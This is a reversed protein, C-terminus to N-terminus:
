HLLSVLLISIWATAWSSQPQRQCLITYGTTMRQMVLASLLTTVSRCMRGLQDLLHM